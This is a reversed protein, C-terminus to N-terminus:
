REEPLGAGRAKICLIVEQKQADTLRSALIGDAVLGLVRQQERRLAAADSYL